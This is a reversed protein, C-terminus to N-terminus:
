GSQVGGGPFFYVGSLTHCENYILAISLVVESKMQFAMCPDGRMPFYQSRISPYSSLAVHWVQLSVSDISCMRNWQLVVPCSSM